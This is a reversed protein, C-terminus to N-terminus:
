TCWECSSTQYCSGDWCEYCYVVNSIICRLWACECGSCHSGCSSTNLDDSSGMDTVYKRYEGEGTTEYRIPRSDEPYLVAFPPVAGSFTVQLRGKATDLVFGVERHGSIDFRYFGEDDDPAKSKLPLSDLSPRQILEDDTLEALLKDGNRVVPTEDFEEPGLIVGDRRLAPRVHGTFDIESEPDSPGGSEATATGTAGIASSSGVVGTTAMKKLIERREVDVDNNDPM